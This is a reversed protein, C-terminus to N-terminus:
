FIISCITSPPRGDFLHDIAAQRGDREGFGEALLLDCVPRLLPHEALPLLILEPLGEGIPNGADGGLDVKACVLDAGGDGTGTFRHARGRPFFLLMPENIVIDAAGTRSLTLEGSKLLHLYGSETFQATACLNGSFFARASPATQAFLAALIDM